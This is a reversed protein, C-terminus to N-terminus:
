NTKICTSLFVKLGCTHTQLVHPDEEARANRHTAVVIDCHVFGFIM